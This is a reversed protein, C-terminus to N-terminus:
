KVMEKASNKMGLLKRMTTFYSFIFKLLDRKSEGAVRKNFSIPVEKVLFPNNTYHLKILIEEVIDFNNCELVLKKLLDAQYMRYSDSVDQVNLGFVIRYTVNLMWSMTKLVFNNDTYGGKCYRSGIVLHWHEKQMEEYFRLIDNPDHSGDADMVVIYEGAAKAFGTRMADGYLNGGERTVYTVGNALCVEQTDDMKEVTDIVLVEYGAGTKELAEKLKPLIMRLNEAEQYAPLVVSIM